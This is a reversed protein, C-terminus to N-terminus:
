SSKIIDVVTSCAAEREQDELVNHASNKFEFKQYPVGAKDLTQFLVGMDVTLDQSGYVVSLKQCRVKTVDTENQLLFLQKVSRIPVALFQFVRRCYEADLTDSPSVRGKRIPKPLFPILAIYLDSLIPRTLLKKYKQDSKVSYLGPASLILHKPQRYKTAAVALMGGLSHGVVSVEDAIKSMLDFGEVAARFWDKRSVNHLVRAEDTGFGPIMPAVYPIGAEELKKSLFAFEQTSATFGHLLLVAHPYRKEGPLHIKSRSEEFTGLEDIPSFRALYQSNLRKAKWLILGRLLLVSIVGAVLHLLLEFNPGNVMHPHHLVQDDITAILITLCAFFVFSLLCGWRVIHNKLHLQEDPNSV